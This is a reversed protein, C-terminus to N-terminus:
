SAVQLFLLPPPFSLSKSVIITPPLNVSSNGPGPLKIISTGKMRVPSAGWWIDLKDDFQRRAIPIKAYGVADLICFRCSKHVKVM